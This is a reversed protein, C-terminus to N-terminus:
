HVARLGLSKLDVRAEGRLAVIRRSQIMASVLFVGHQPRHQKIHQPAKAECGGVRPCTCTSLALRTKGLQFSALKHEPLPDFGVGFCVTIPIYVKSRIYLASLLM